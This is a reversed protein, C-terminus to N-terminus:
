ALTVMVLLTWKNLIKQRSIIYKFQLKKKKKKKIVGQDCGLLPPLPSLQMVVGINQFILRLSLFNIKGPMKMFHQLETGVWLWVSGAWILCPCLSGAWILCPCLHVQGSLVHSITIWGWLHPWALLCPPVPM